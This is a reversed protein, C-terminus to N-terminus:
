THRAKWAAVADDWVRVDRTLTWGPPLTCPYNGAGLWVIINGSSRTVMNHQNLCLTGTGPLADARFVNGEYVLSVNKEPERNEAKIFGGSTNPAAATLPFAKLRLLSNRITVTEGSGNVSALQAAGPRVSIGVYCGDMLVDEIVGSKLMDNEICDDHINTFWSARLTWNDTGNFRVADGYNDVRFAEVTTKSGYAYMGFTSHYVDWVTSPGWTGQVTGGSWCADSGASFNIAYADVAKWTARIADVRAGAALPQSRSDYRSTMDGSLTVLTGTSRALCASGATPLGPLPAAITLSATDALLGGEVTAIVRYTGAVTGATYLGGGTISGGSATYTPSVATSSGDSMRGIVAFQKTAGTQLAATEPTLVVGVLTPAPPATPDPTPDPTPVSDTSPTSDSPPLTPDPTPVPVPDPTPEPLPDTGPESPSLSPDITVAVTDALGTSVTTAIVQFAGATSGASYLGSADVQGGTAAWTVGVPIGFNRRLAESNNLYGLAQFAQQAGPALKVDEPSIKISSVKRVPVVRVQATGARLFQQREGSLRGVLLYTGPVSSTFAGDRSISGGSAAWQVATGAGSQRSHDQVAFSVTQNTEITVVRPVVVLPEVAGEAPTDIQTETLDTGACAIALGLSSLMARNRLLAIRRSLKYTYTM